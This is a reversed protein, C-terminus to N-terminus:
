DLLEFDIWGREPDTSILRVQVKDGVDADELRAGRILRGEVPPTITRIWTGKSSAGTVIASFEQGVREGFLVAAAVKRMTREVKQAANERETCHAALRALEEDSYPEPAAALTAKLLRQTILDAYRRNPATAHAYRPVALGFHGEGGSGPRVAAYTGPGLLKVISLSLDVYKRPEAAKRRAMFNALALADPEEPLSDGLAEAIAVIRPWRAPTRVVRELSLRQSDDLFGALAGNASVMFNEILARAKNKATVKLDVVKGGAMVPLAEVTEIDLAGGRGRASLLRTAAEDQLRLQAELGPVEAAAAPLAGRGELWAGVSEYALKAHNRTLARYFTTRSLSGDPAVDMEIVVALRDGDELLSTLGASLEDPLMPFVAVGAYVSTGNEAAREDTQSGEPVYADVDAIGVLVRIEGSQLQEAVEIQDLDRSETNDISSWLLGRLDRIGPALAPQTPLKQIEAIVEPAFDPDFGGEFM